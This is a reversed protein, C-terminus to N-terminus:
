TLVREQVLEDVLHAVRQMELPGIPVPADAVLAAYTRSLYERIGEYPSGGALRDTVARVAGFAITIGDSLQNVVQSVNESRSRQRNVRLTGNILDCKAWGRTGRVFVTNQRPAIASSFFLSGRVRGGSLRADFGDHPFGQQGEAAHWRADIVEYADVFTLALYVLHTIFEHVFGAPLNHSPSSVNADVYRSGPTNPAIIVVEVYRPEGIIGQNVVAELDLFARNFRYNHDETVVRKAASAKSLLVTLHETDPAAPKEVIVHAGSQLVREAIDVHTGPPTLVHVVEPRVLALMTRVDSFYRPAHFRRAAVSALASSRDCVGVLEVNSEEALFRLHEDAIRGAGVVAVRM